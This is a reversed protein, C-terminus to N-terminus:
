SPVAYFGRPERSRAAPEGGVYLTMLRHGEGEEVWAQAASAIRQGARRDNADWELPHTDTVLCWVTRGPQPSHSLASLSNRTVSELDVKANESAIATLYASLEQQSAGQDLLAHKITALDFSQM